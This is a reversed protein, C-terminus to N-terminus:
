PASDMNLLNDKAWWILVNSRREFPINMITAVLNQYHNTDQFLVFGKNMEVTSGHLVVKVHKM